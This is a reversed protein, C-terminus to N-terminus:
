GDAEELKVKAKLFDPNSATITKFIDPSRRKRLEAKIDDGSILPTLLPDSM